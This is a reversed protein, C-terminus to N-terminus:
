SVSFYVSLEVLTFSTRLEHLLLFLVVIHDHLTICFCGGRKQRREYIQVKSYLKWSMKVGDSLFCVVFLIIREKRSGLKTGMKRLLPLLCGSEAHLVTQKLCVNVCLECPSMIFAPLAWSTSLSAPLFYSSCNARKCIVHFRASLLNMYLYRMCMSSKQLCIAPLCYYLVSELINHM